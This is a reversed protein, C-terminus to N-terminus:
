SIRVDAQAARIVALAVQASIDRIRALRPYVLDSAKEEPTLYTALAISAREVMSDTVHRAKSLITGLGLAPFIYMNNGQGPEYIKSGYEVPKYPSGSAFIVSGNTRFMSVYARKAYSYFCTRGNLQM